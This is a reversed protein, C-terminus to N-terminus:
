GNADDVQDQGNEGSDISDKLADVAVVLSPDLHSDVKDLGDQTNDENQADVLLVTRHNHHPHPHASDKHNYTHDHSDHRGNASEDNEADDDEHEQGQLHVEDDDYAGMRERQRTGACHGLRRDVLAVCCGTSSSLSPLVM